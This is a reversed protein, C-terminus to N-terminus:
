SFFNIIGANDASVLLSSTSSKCLAISNITDYHLASGSASSYDIRANKNSTGMSKLVIKLNATVKHSTFKLSSNEGHNHTLLKSNSIKDLDVVVINKDSRVAMVINSNMINLASIKNLTVPATSLIPQENVKNEKAIFLDVPPLEDSDVVVMFCQCKTYDWTSFFASSYGGVILLLQKGFKNKFLEVKEIPSNDGFSFSKVLINFRLDWIIIIGATTGFILTSQDNSVCLSLITGFLTPVEIKQIIKMQLIDIQLIRFYSTTIFLLSREENISLTFNIPIEKDELQMHRITKFKEYSIKNDNKQYMVRMIKISGDKCGVAFCDFGPIFQVDTVSSGCDLLLSSCSKEGVVIARIDWLRLIGKTSGTLLYPQEGTSVAMSIISDNESEFLNCILKGKLKSLLNSTETSSIPGGFEKYDKLSYSIEVNNLFSKISEIDGEYSNWISFRKKPDTTEPIGHQNSDHNITPDLQVYINELNSTTTPISKSNLVLSGNLDKVTSKQNLKIMQNESVMMSGISSSLINLNGYKRDTARVDFFINHPRANSLTLADTKAEKYLSSNDDEFLEYSDRKVTRVVYSRLIALKWLDTKAFGIASFRDIWNKDEATMSIEENDLHTIIVKSTSSSNKFGYNKISYDKNAFSIIKNGFIDTSKNPIQQWFLTTTARLFWSCLLRYAARSIPPKCSTLLFDNTFEIDFELYLRIIPYLICYIEANSLKDVIKAIVLLSFQRIWKNPHLLLVSIINSLDYFFKKGILGVEILDQFSQLVSVVVLENSDYLTQVMLPLIYQELTIPGSLVAIGSITQILKIKLQPDKDNLYTILHSLIIDNTKERGFIKCLPLINCLLSYKVSQQTDILLATTLEEIQKSLKRSYNNTIELNEMGKSIRDTDDINSSYNLFLIEQFKNSITVLDGLCNAIVIRVYTNKQSTILLRKIRPFIYDVFINENSPDVYEIVCLIQSLGSVALAQIDPNDESFSSIIYPVVRDLKNNDSILQSFTILLELCKIKLSKATINRLCHCLFSVILLACEEKVTSNLQNFRQLPIHLSDSIKVTPMYYKEIDKFSQQSHISSFNNTNFGFSNCIKKFNFYINQCCKDMLNLDNESINSTSDRTGTTNTCILALTRFYDYTFTYFYDPFFIKRYKELIQTSNLREKPNLAVIDLILDVLTDDKINAKLVEKINLEGNKFKFMDSLNFLPTGDNYLEAICCGASFMDMEPTLKQKQSSNKIDYLTSNFREPALYCSRKKSPDFYFLFEGPNDEPIYVPKLCSAFDTLLIWNWNTTLINETKIDGHVVGLEHINQLIKLLQFSIFKLEISQLYPRSNIRDYLNHKLHQRTLYGARATEFINAYNLVNPLISLLKSEQLLSDRISQLSYGEVPKIFVKIIIEGNVDIAKCTKLFRSSNLQSIYHINELVDIYSFIAISPSTQVLLSLQAGM